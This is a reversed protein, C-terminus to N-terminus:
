KVLGKGPLRTLVPVYAPMMLPDPETMLFLAPVTTKVFAFVYPPLVVTFPPVSESFKPPDPDGAFLMMLLELTRISPSPAKFRVPELVAVFVWVNAPTVNLLPADAMVAVWPPAELRLPVNPAIVRLVPAVTSKVSGVAPLKIVVAVLTFPIM